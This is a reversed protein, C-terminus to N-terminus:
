LHGATLICIYLIFRAPVLGLFYELKKKMHLSPGMCCIGNVWFIDSIELVGFVNSIKAVGFFCVM